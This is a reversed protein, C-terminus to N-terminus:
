YKSLPWTMLGWFISALFFFGIAALIQFHVVSALMSFFAGLACLFFTLAWFWARTIVFLGLVGACIALFAEM